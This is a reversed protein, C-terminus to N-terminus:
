AIVGQLQLLNARTNVVGLAYLENRFSVNKIYPYVTMQMDIPKGLADRVTSPGFFPIVLYTSSTWGWHAFTLGMDETNDPVGALKAVNFFGLLGLTTNILFRSGDTASQSFNAQFLDNGITPLDSLNNYFNHIGTVIPEPTVNVYAQALPKLILHDLGDNFVYMARNLPGFPDKTSVAKATAECSLSCIGIFLLLVTLNKRM